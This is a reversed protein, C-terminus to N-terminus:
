PTHHIHRGDSDFPDLLISFFSDPLPWTGEKSASRARHLSPVVGM